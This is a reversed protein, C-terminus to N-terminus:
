HDYQQTNYWMYTNRLGEKLPVKPSFGLNKIKRIDPCRHLVSGEPLPSPIIKVSKGSIESLLRTVREISVEDETGINYIEGNRGKELLLLLARVFDDVYIFARTQKGTGQVPLNVKTGKSSLLKLILEPIVHERGMGQGYVNHPRFIVVKKLFTRGIYYSLFESIIKGSAYSYRPNYLAPIHYPVDEPTPIMPPKQYVESSSALFLEPVQEARAADLVTLMGRAGVDLVLYPKEYFYRTGNIFALHIIADIQKCAKKVTSLDRIDGKIFELNKNKPLNSVSGRFQNDLIRVYTNKKLLMKTIATGIFGAGGTILYKKM